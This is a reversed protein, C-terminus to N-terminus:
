NEENKIKKKNEIYEIAELAIKEFFTGDSIGPDRIKFNHKEEKEEMVGDKETLYKKIFMIYWKM